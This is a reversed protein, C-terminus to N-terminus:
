HTSEPSHHIRSLNVLGSEISESMLAECVKSSDSFGVPGCMIDGFAQNGESGNTSPNGKSIGSKNTEEDNSISNSIPQSATEPSFLCHGVAEHKEQDPSAILEMKKQNSASIMVEQVVKGPTPESEPIKQSPTSPPRIDDVLPTSMLEVVEEGTTSVREGMKVPKQDSLSPFQEVAELNSTPVADAKEQKYYDLVADGATEQNSTPVLEPKVGDDATIMKQQPESFSQINKAKMEESQKKYLNLARQFVTARIAPFFSAGMTYSINYGSEASEELDMQANKTVDEDTKNGETELLGMCQGYLEPHTLDESIEIGSLYVHCFQSGGNSSIKCPEPSNGHISKPSAESIGKEPTSSSRKIEISEARTVSRNRENRTRQSSQGAWVEDPVRLPYDEKQSTTPLEMNMGGNHGKWMEASTERGRGSMLHRNQDWEPRGFMHSDDGYVGNSGDWGHLHPPCSEEAPNRWGFPHGHTSFRDTDPLHYHVGAHNLEMSPRVGFLPPAPFQQMVHFGGPPPGHQYPLFGNAVPSPWNPTGKWPNGQGRGAGTDSSRKFRNSPKGRSDEESSGLVSPGDAGARFPPPPPLSSSRDPFHGTRNFSSSVSVTDGDGQSFEDVAKEFPFERSGRDENNSHDRADKSGTSRRGTEEVDLSRRVSSRNSYRRDISSSSPSKEFQMPSALVDSRPSRETSLEGFHNDDRQVSKDLSRSKELIGSVGVERSSTANPRIREESASDRYKMDMQKSGHRHQEKSVHAGPSPSSKRRANSVSSDVDAHRSQSRGRDVHSDIKSSSSSKKEVDSRHEKSSQLKIDGHDDTDDNSRKRGKIDKYRAGRNDPHPSGDRDDDQSKSKKHRSEASISEDRLHKSDSRSSIHDRSSREDRHKDDRPRHDRELDERYKVRYRGDKNREEKYRGNKSHDDRSSLRKETSDRVDDQYKDKDGSGDRRRRIRKELEKELEPNRLDDQIQWETNDAERKVPREEEFGGSQSGQKRGLEGGAVGSGPITDVSRERRVDQVKRDKETGREKEKADKYQHNDKRSSDKESKRKSEVKSMSKRAEENEGTSVVNEEKRESWSDSKRSSKSKSDVSSKSKPGKDSDPRPGDGKTERDGVLSDGQEDEGGNWRDTVVADARDKRRKSAVYDESMDGNGPGFLDKGDQSQSGLKRKEGSASDRSVRAAAEERGKRDRLSGDEDSDSYERTDKSSHKHQRHSKHRSSRPM